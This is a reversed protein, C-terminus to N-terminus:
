TYMCITKARRPKGSEVPIIKIIGQLKVFPNGIKISLQPSDTLNDGEQVGRRSSTLRNEMCTTECEKAESQDQNSTCPHANETM